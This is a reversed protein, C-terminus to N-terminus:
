RPERGSISGIILLDNDTRPNPLRVATKYVWGESLDVCDVVGCDATRVRKAKHASQKIFTAFTPSVFRAVWVQGTVSQFLPSGHVRVERAGSMNDAHHYVSKAAGVNEQSSRM